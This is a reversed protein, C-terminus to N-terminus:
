YPHYIFLITWKMTCLLTAVSTAAKNHAHRHNMLREVPSTTVIGEQTGIAERDGVRCNIIAITEYRMNPRSSIRVLSRIAKLMGFFAVSAPVRKKILLASTGYRAAFM